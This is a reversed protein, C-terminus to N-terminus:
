YILLTIGTESESFFDSFPTGARDFFETAYPQIKYAFNLNRNLLKTGNASQAALEQGSRYGSKQHNIQPLYDIVKNINRERASLIYNRASM